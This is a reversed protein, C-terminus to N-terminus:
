RKDNLLNEFLNVLTKVLLIPDYYKCAFDRGNKGLELRKSVKDEYLRIINSSLKKSDEAKSVYGCNSKRIIEAGDGNLSAIIPKGSAMYAQIKAPVTWHLNNIDALTVLLADSKHFVTPMIKPSFQGLLKINVLGLRIIENKMFTARSGSGVIVFMIKKKHKLNNAAKIITDVSQNNGINGAFTITFYHDMFKFESPPNKLIKNNFVKKEAANPFVAIAKSENCLNRVRKVFSKSQVLILDSFFYLVRVPLKNLMLIYHNKVYGTSHLDEPWLDQVWLVLKSNFFLKFPLAALGQILPSTGYVFICDIKYKRLLFPGFISASLIFSIYNLILRFASKNGRTVLPVRFIKIKKYNEESLGLTSYGAYIKGLPYNPKGTLVFVNEVENSLDDALENIRFSEPWFHQSMILLNV